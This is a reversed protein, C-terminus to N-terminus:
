PEPLREARHGVPQPSKRKRRFLRRNRTLAVNTGEVVLDASRALAVQGGEQTRKMSGIMIIDLLSMDYAREKTKGTSRM